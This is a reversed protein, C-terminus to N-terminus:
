SYSLLVGFPMNARLSATTQQGSSDSPWPTVFGLFVALFQQYSVDSANILANRASSYIRGDTATWYRDAM